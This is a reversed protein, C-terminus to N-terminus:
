GPPPTGPPVAASSRPGGTGSSAGSRCVHRSRTGARSRILESFDEARRAWSHEAAFAQRREILRQSGPERLMCDVREAFLRPEAAVCVLDTGLWRIAPLDTAVVPRGAALYELTKLPFSGRNFASDRYPV